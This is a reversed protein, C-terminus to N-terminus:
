RPMTDLMVNSISTSLATLAGSIDDFITFDFTEAAKGSENYTITAKLAEGEHSFAFKGLEAGADNNLKGVVSSAAPDVNFAMNYDKAAKVTLSSKGAADGTFDLGVTKGAASTIDGKVSM